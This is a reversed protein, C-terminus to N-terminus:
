GFMAQALSSVTAKGTFTPTVLVISGLGGDKYPEYAIMVEKDTGRVLVWRRDPTMTRFYDSRIRFLLDIVEQPKSVKLSGNPGLWDDFAWDITTSPQMTKEGMVEMFLARVPSQNKAKEEQDNHLSVQRQLDHVMTVIEQPEMKLEDVMTSLKRLAGATTSAGDEFEIVFDDGLSIRSVINTFSEDLKKYILELGHYKAELEAAMVHASQLSKNANELDTLAAELQDKLDTNEAVLGALEPNAKLMTALSKDGSGNLIRSIGLASVAGATGFLAAIALKNM